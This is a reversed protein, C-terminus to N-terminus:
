KVIRHDLKIEKSNGKISEFLKIDNTTISRNQGIVLTLLYKDTQFLREIHSKVTSTNVYGICYRIEDHLLNFFRPDRIINLTATQVNVDLDITKTKSIKVSRNALQSLGNIIDQKKLKTTNKMLSVVVAIGTLIHYFESRSGHEYEHPMTIHDLTYVLKDHKFFINEASKMWVLATYVDHYTTFQDPTFFRTQNGM